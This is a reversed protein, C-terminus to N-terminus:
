WLISLAITVVIVLVVWILGYTYLRGRKQKIGQAFFLIARTFIVVVSFLFVLTVIPSM